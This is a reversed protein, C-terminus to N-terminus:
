NSLCFYQSYLPFIDQKLFYWLSDWCDSSRVYAQKCYENQFSSTKNLFIGCVIEVIVSGLM